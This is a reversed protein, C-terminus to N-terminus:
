QLLRAYAMMVKYRPDDGEIIYKDWPFGVRFYTGTAPRRAGPHVVYSTDRLASRYLRPRWDRGRDDLILVLDEGNLTAQLQVADRYNLKFVDSM